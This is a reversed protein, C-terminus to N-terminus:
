KTKMVATCKNNICGCSGQGCDLTGPECSMTCYIGSCDPADLKPVCETPHCCTAPVCDEDIVCEKDEEVCGSIFFLIIIISMLSLIVGLKM